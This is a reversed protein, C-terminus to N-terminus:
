YGENQKLNTNADLESQPIPYALRYDGFPVSVDYQNRLPVNREIDQGTRMLDLFRQGEMALEKRRELRINEVTATTYNSANRNSTILDLYKKAETQYQTDGTEDYLQAQAEAYTLVVEAYRIVRINDTGTVKPYKGKMRYIQFSGDTYTNLLNLRVDGPEYLDYLEKTIEIDGYNTNQYIYAICDSGPNDSTTFALEFISNASEDTAWSSVYNTAPIIQYGGNEIVDKATASAKSYDGIALYYRAQLSLAGYYTLTTPEDSDFEPSMLSVAKEFDAGIKDWTEQATGRTPFLELPRYKTVYPIGKDSGDVYAQGYRVLLDMHVKARIAYGQGKVYNVEPSEELESNIVINANAITQYADQWLDTVSNVTYNLHNVNSFRGSGENSFANDTRAEGTVIFDRGYYNADTMQNYVGDMLSYLDDVTKVGAEITKNQQTTSDLFGSCANLGIALVFVIFLNSLHKM